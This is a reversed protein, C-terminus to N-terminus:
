HRAIMKAGGGVSRGMDVADARARGAAVHAPDHYTREVAGYTAEVFGDEKARQVLLANKLVVLENGTTAAARQRKYDAMKERLRTAMGVFFADRADLSAEIALDIDRAKSWRNPQFKSGLTIQYAGWEFTMARNIKRRLYKALELDCEEGYFQIASDGDEDLTVGVKVDCYDCLAALMYREVPSWDTRGNSNKGSYLVDGKGYGKAAEKRKTEDKVDELNL